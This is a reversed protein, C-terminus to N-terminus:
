KGSTVETENDLGGKFNDVHTFINYTGSLVKRRMGYKFTIEETQSYGIYAM